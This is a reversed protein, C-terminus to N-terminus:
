YFVCFSTLISLFWKSFSKFHESKAEEIIEDIEKGEWKKPLPLSGAMKNILDQVPTIIIKGNQETVAVKNGNKLRLKRAINIPLTLQMKSTITAFYNMNILIVVVIYM